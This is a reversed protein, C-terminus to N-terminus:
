QQQNQKWWTYIKPFAIHFWATYLSPSIKLETEVENMTKFCVAEVENQNPSIESDYYGVFVHDFEHETLGNDFNAKYVFDFIKKLSTTFGLEEYLRRDAAVAIEESPFPHSCCANSWLGASHYKNLARKQLLIEGKDNFIFISFARHLLAKEHAEIKEVIGIENDNEDVLIVEEM